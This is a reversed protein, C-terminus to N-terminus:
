AVLPRKKRIEQLMVKVLASLDYEPKWGWDTRAASDNISNPWSDALQQRFDPSYHIHFEPLHQQIEAALMQPTFSVGSLNYSSRIRVADEPAEMISITARIADDMMMMPLMTHPALFCTYHGSELAHYFIDVAYDTTGGGPESRYGILGPYRISRVDVGFKKHYYECWREGALKSIGYVSSPEMVTYQPTDNKPTNPGFAAISSPWFVKLQYEKALDLIHFLGVMNLEWAKEPFKESTASLLAALQYVERVGHEKIIAETGAKDLANLELFLGGGADYGDPIRIDSAIVNENGRLKRLALTLEIGIQGSAGIVLTKGKM